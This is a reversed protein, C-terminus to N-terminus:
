SLVAGRRGGHAFYYFFVYFVAGLFWVWAWTSASKFDIGFKVPNSFVNPATNAAQATLVGGQQGGAGLGYQM